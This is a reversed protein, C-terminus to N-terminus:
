QWNEEEEDGSRIWGKLAVAIIAAAMITFVPDFTPVYMGWVWLTMSMPVKENVGQLKSEAEFDIAYYENVWFDKPTQIIVKVETYKQPDIDMTVTPVIVISFGDKELKDKNTCTVQFKDRDNGDNIIRLNVPTEKGPKVKKFPENVTMVVRAYQSITVQFASYAQYPVVPPVGNQRELNGMVSVSIFRRASRPEAAVAIPVTIDGGSVLTVIFIQPTITIGAGTVMVSITEQHLTPNAITCSVQGTPNGGPAVDLTLLGPNVVLTFQPIAQGEAEEPTFVIISSLMFLSVMAIAMLKKTLM